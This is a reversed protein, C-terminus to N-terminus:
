FDMKKFYPVAYESIKRIFKWPRQRSRSLHKTFVANYEIVSKGGRKKKFKGVGASDHLILNQEKAERMTMVTLHRYLAYEAPLSTDYGFLPPTMVGNRSFYGMIANLKGDKRITKIKLWQEDRALRLFDETFQPNFYSYKELYLKRYLEVGRAIEDDRLEDSEVHGNKRVARMDERHVKLKLGYSPDVYWVQRSLMMEYGRSELTQYIHQNRFQDVSRFVIARDPFWKALADCLASLQDSNVSPYLNTSFLWNNVYVVKNLEARRLYWALPILIMKILVEIPPNKLRKVEEFGGYSVYHSYPSVIYSNKPHFGSVTISIIVDDVKALMLQTDHVNKIYRQVDAMMPLLYRRAYDGDDTQPFELTNINERTFLEPKM